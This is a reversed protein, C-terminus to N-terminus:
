RTKMVMFISPSRTNVLNLSSISDLWDLPLFVWLHSKNFYKGHCRLRERELLGSCCVVIDKIYAPTLKWNGKLGQSYLLGLAPGWIVSVYRNGWRRSYHCMIVSHSLGVDRLLQSKCLRCGRAANLQDKQQWGPVIAGKYVGWCHVDIRIVFALRSPNM